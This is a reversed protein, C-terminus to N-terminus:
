NPISLTPWLTQPVPERLRWRVTIPANGEWAVFDVEGCYVFPKRSLPRVFLHVHYGLYKHERILQGHKSAQKTRNQSQWSFERDSLFQNTYRHAPNTVDKELTTLLFIHPQSVLFGVHWKAQSFTLGFAAPIAERPYREWLKPGSSEQVDRGVPELIPGKESRRIRVRQGQGPLGAEAGFWARLITPLQNESEGIKRVVNIAIKAVIAEMPSGSVAIEIPGEPPRGGSGPAPLFLIPDGSSNRSVRCIVDGTWETDAGRSLYQALRWDLIERLLIGFATPNGIDFAFAFIQRDFTFYKVGGM